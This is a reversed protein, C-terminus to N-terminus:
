GQRNLKVDELRRRAVKLYFLGLEPKEDYLINVIAGIFAKEVIYYNLVSRASKNQQDTLHLYDELMGNAVEYSDSRVEVDVVLMAFDSLIDITSYMPNFDVADLVKVRKWSKVKSEADDPMIWINRAKLDGHCRRIRGDNVREEFAEQYKKIGFIPQLKVKLLASFEKLEKFASSRLILKDDISPADVFAFNHELKEQLQKVSGWSEGESSYLSAEGVKDCPHHMAAMYRALVSAYPKSFLVNDRRLLHDLRRERPLERMLLAYEAKPHLEERTPNTIIEGICIQKKVDPDVVQALGLYVDQTFERNWYLADLLCLQRKEVTEFSYRVDKYDNLIKMVTHENSEANRTFFLTANEARRINDIKYNTAKSIPTTTAPVTSSRLATRIYSTSYAHLVVM